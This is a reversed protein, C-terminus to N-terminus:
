KMYAPTYLPDGHVDQSTLDLANEQDTILEMKRILISSNMFTRCYHEFHGMEVGVPFHGRFIFFDFLHRKMPKAPIKALYKTEYTHKGILYSGPLSIM